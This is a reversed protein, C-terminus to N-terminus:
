RASTNDFCIGQYCHKPSNLIIQFDRELPYHQFHTSKYFIEFHSHPPSLKNYNM